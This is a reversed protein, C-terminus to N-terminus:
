KLELLKIDRFWCEDGHHTLMLHGVIKDGFGPEDKFKSKALGAKVEPSGLDLTLVNRGNLWHEIHSGKVVVRSQNWEGAARRPSDLAPPLIEYFSATQHLRSALDTKGGLDDLMQYEPGPTNPRAETVFYKIGSNTKKALRWEWSFEFNDFKRETIIDALRDGVAHKAPLAHVMGDEVKWRGEPIGTGRFGRWGKLGQGDFLLQWGASKEAASLVNHSGSQEAAPSHTPIGVLGEAVVAFFLVANFRLLVSQSVSVIHPIKM